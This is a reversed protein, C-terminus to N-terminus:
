NDAEVKEITYAGGFAGYPASTIGNRTTGQFNPPPVVITVKVVGTEGVQLLGAHVAVTAITSDSTYVDTGWLSGNNTGTVRYYFVKGIQDARDDVSPPAPLVNIAAAPAAKVALSRLSRVDALQVKQEGFQPSHVRLSGADIRGPIKFGETTLVDDKRVKLVDAPVAQRIKELIAEARRKVEADNSKTAALVAPYARAELRLLEAAAAERTKFEPSGLDGIAKEVKRAVDGSIRTAFELTQIDAVPVTLKGYPTTITVATEVLTLKLASGDAFRVEVAAPSAKLTDEPKPAQGRVDHVGSATLALVATGIVLGFWRGNFM